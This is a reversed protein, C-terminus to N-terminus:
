IFDRISWHQLAQHPHAMHAQKDIINETHSQLMQNGAQQAPFGLYEQRGRYLLLRSTELYILRRVGLVIKKSLWSM